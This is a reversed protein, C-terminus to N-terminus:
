NGFVPEVTGMRQRYRRRGEKSDIDRKMKEILTVPLAQEKILFSMQRVETKEPTRLCKDRQTCTTCHTKNGTFKHYVRGDIVCRSGNSYLAKGEPCICSKTLADHIFDKPQYRHKAQAAKLQEATKSKDTIPDPPLKYKSQVKFREDNKRMHGDVILAPINAEHLARVNDESHYGADATILTESHRIGDTARVMPLLTSQESGSGHAKVAVIIQHQSDVAAVATYAQIVGEAIALKIPKSYHRSPMRAAVINPHMTRYNLVM